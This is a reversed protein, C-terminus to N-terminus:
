VMDRKPTYEKVNLAHLSNRTCDRKQKKRRKHDWAKKVEIRLRQVVKDKEAGMIDAVSKCGTYSQQIKINNM